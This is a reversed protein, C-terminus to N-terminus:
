VSPLNSSIKELYAIFFGELQRSPLIRRCHRIETHYTRNNFSPLPPHLRVAGKSVPLLRVSHPEKKLIWDIVEENEEPALTCTSYLIRGGPKCASVASRLLWKQLHSLERVKHQSWSLYTKPLTFSIRGEMTCPVDVLVKDFYEPYHQWVSQGPIDTVATNTIGQIRLNAKLKERRIPSTDNAVIEGSNEMLAAMQTTKSGPAATMDLVREGPQPNLIMAPIMSSLSQVYIEGQRYMDTGTLVRASTVPLLYASENWAVKEYSIGSEELKKEVVLSSTRLTNVRLSTCRKNGFADVVRAYQNGSITRLRALLNDPFNDPIVTM